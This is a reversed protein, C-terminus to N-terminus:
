FHAGDPVDKMLTDIESVLLSQKAWNEKVLNIVGEKTLKNKLDKPVDITQLLEERSMETAVVGDSTETSFFNFNNNPMYAFINDANEYAQIGDKTFLANIRDQVDSSNTRIGIQYKARKRIIYPNPEKGSVPITYNGELRGGEPDKVVVFELTKIDENSLVGLIAYYRQKALDWNSENENKGGYPTIPETYEIRSVSEPLRQFDLEQVEYSVEFQGERLYIYVKQDKKEQASLGVATAPILIITNKNIVNEPTSWVVYEVRNLKDDYEKDKKYVTAGQHLGEVGDFNFIGDNPMNLEVNKWAKIAQLKDLFLNGAADLIIGASELMEVSVLEGTKSDIITYALGENGNPDVFKTERLTVNDGKKILTVNDNGKITEGEGPLAEIQGSINTIPINLKTLVQAVLDNTRGEESRLWDLLGVDNKIQDQTLSKNPNVLMDDAVWIKKIANFAQRHAQGDPTNIWESYKVSLKGLTLQTSQYKRYAKELINTLVQSEGAPLEVDIDKLIEQVKENNEEAQAQETRADVEEQEPQTSETYARKLEEIRKLIESDFAKTLQGSENYFITLYKADGTQGFFMVQNPDPYVNGNASEIASIQNLLQNQEVINVYKEASKRFDAEASKYASKMVEATREFVENFKNPNALIEITKDYVKARGKLASHDVIQKLAEDMADQNVFSGATKAMFRVYNHFDKRLKGIKRRDFSGDKTLNKPDNLITKLAELRKFRETKEKVAGAQSKDESLLGIETQLAGLEKDISNKDLLVTIDSAAMKEFLPDSALTQFISNSRELAREFGDETFMALYRVHDYAKRNIVENYWQRTETKRDYQSEDHPNQYKDKLKNYRTETRDIQDVMDQLRTRLKGSKVEKKSSPFAEALEVDSLKMYDKMQQEFYHAGGTSLVDYIQQFKAFDKADIHDFQSEMMNAEKLEGALQKQM